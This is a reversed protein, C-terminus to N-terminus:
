IGVSDKATWEDISWSVYKDLVRNLDIIAYEVVVQRM